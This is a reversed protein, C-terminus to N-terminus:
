PKPIRATPSGLANGQAVIPHGTPASSVSRRSATPDITLIPEPTPM